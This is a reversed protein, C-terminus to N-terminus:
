PVYSLEWMVMALAVTVLQGYARTKQVNKECSLKIEDETVFSWMIFCNTLFATRLVTKVFYCITKRRKLEALKEHNQYVCPLIFHNALICQLWILMFSSVLM